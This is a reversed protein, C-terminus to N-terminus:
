LRIKDPDRSTHFFLSIRAENTEPLLRYIMRYRGHWVILERVLPDELEPVVRGIEPFTRISRAAKKTEERLALGIKPDDLRLRRAAERLQERATKTWTVRTAM